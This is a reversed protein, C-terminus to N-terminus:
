PIFPFWWSGTRSGPVALLGGDAETVAYFGVEDLASEEAAQLTFPIATGHITLTLSLTDGMNAPLNGEFIVRYAVTGHATAGSNSTSILEVNDLGSLPSMLTNKLLSAEGMSCSIPWFPATGALLRGELHFEYGDEGQVAIGAELVYVPANASTNVGYGPVFGFHRLVMYACAVLLALIAAIVLGISLTRLLKKM